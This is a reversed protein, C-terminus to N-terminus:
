ESRILKELQQIYYKRLAKKSLFIYKGDIKAKSSKLHNFPIPIYNRVTGYFIFMYGDRIEINTITRKFISLEEKDQRIYYLADGIKLDKFTM